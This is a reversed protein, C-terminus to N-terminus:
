SKRFILPILLTSMATVPSEVIGFEQSLYKGWFLTKAFLNPLFSQKEHTLALLSFLWEPLENVHSKHGANGLGM